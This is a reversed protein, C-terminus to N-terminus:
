LFQTTIIPDEIREPNDEVISFAEVNSLPKEKLHLIENPTLQEGNKM